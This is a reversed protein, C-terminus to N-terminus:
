IEFIKAVVENLRGDVRVWCLLLQQQDLYDKVSVYKIEHFRM